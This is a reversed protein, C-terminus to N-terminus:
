AWTMAKRALGTFGASSCAARSCAFAEQCYAWQGACFPRSADGQRARDAYCRGPLLALLDFLRAFGAGPRILVRPGNCRIHLWPLAAPSAAAAPFRTDRKRPVDSALFM